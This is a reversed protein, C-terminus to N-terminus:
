SIMKRKRFGCIWLFWAATPVRLWYNLADVDSNYLAVTQRLNRELDSFTGMYAAYRPDKTAWRNEQGLYSIRSHVTKVVKLNELNRESNAKSFDLRHISQCVEADAGFDVKQAAFMDVILSLLDAQESLIISM